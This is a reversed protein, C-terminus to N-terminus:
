SSSVMQRNCDGCYLNLGPRGLAMSKCQPCVFRVDAWTNRPLLEVDPLELPEGTVGLRFPGDTRFHFHDIVDRLSLLGYDRDNLGDMILFDLWYDQGPVDAFQVRAGRALPGHGGGATTQFPILESFEGLFNALHHQKVWKSPIASLFTATDWRFPLAVTTKSGRNSALFRLLAVAFYVWPNGGKAEIDPNKKWYLKLRPHPM